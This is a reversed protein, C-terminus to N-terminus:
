NAPASSNSLRKPQLQQWESQSVSRRKQTFVFAGKKNGVVIDPLGDGNIDAATVQTGVGSDDDVLHPVFEARQREPRVLRFWYLVAPANPEPDMASGHAWFRKGTVLDKLGDGDMDVLDLAHPQSFKVGYPNEAPEQNIIIHKRFSVKGQERIQEFWAIGYGHASLSTIVDNLGDGNVDYAFMQAGGEGFPFSRKTWLKGNALIEPQEWWGDKELLDVRGDGNVDGFGLGHTYRQYDSKPSVAHFKWPQAAQKWDAQAYGIYGESCCIIEPKGDGTVDGFGPSENDLVNLIVHNKWHGAKGQPNEYWVVEKGPFGYILIDAWGDQNFDYTFTLFNDAYANNVGRAGEFGPITVESGDMLKRQFTQNATRYEYRKKFDPGEFWFPGYVIDVVGDRNFDAYHAGEAWFEDTIHQKTFSHIRWENAVSLTSGALWLLVFASSAYTFRCMRLLATSPLPKTNMILQAIILLM